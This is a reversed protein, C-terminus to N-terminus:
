LMLTNAAQEARALSRDLAAMTKSLDESEDNMWHRLVNLYVGALGAVRVTGRLGNTEVGAAELTWAMSRGLHPFSIVAQKPDPAFSKLISLVAARDKGLVDFREMMIDFLRDRSSAAPDPDSFAELVKRDVMKGYAVLIDTKDDFIESMEALSAGAAHAIDTMTVIDWDMRSALDLAATVLREKLPIKPLAMLAKTKKVAKKASM